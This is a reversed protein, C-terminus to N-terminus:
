FLRFWQYSAGSQRLLSLSSELYFYLTPWRCDFAEEKCESQLLSYPKMKRFDPEIRLMGKEQQKSNGTIDRIWVQNIAADTHLHKKTTISPTIM